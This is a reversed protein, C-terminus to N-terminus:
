RSSCRVGFGPTPPEFGEQGALPAVAQSVDPLDSDLTTVSEHCYGSQDEIFHEKKGTLEELLSVSKM